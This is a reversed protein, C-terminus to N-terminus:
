FPVQEQGGETCIQIRKLTQYKEDKTYWADVYAPTISQAYEGLDKDFTGYWSEDVLVGFRIWPSGKLVKGDESTKDKTKGTKIAVEHLTGRVHEWEAQVPGGPVDPVAAPGPPHSDELHQAEGQAPAPPRAAPAQPTPMPAAAAPKSPAPAAPQQAETPAAQSPAAGQQAASRRRPQQIPPPLEHLSELGLAANDTDILATLEISAGEFLKMARKVVTKKRMEDPWDVWPGSDKAKSAAKVKDLEELSMVAFDQRGDPLVYVCYAATTEGPDKLRPEHTLSPNTGRTFHFIDGAHVVEATAHSLAKAKKAKEVLARWDPVAVMELANTKKNKFPVPWMGGAGIRDIGAEACKKCFALVSEPSCQALLPNRIRAELALALLRQVNVYKPALARLAAANTQLLAELDNAM